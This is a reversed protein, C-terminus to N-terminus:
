WEAQAIQRYDQLASGILRQAEFAKEAVDNLDQVTEHEFAIALAGRKTKTKMRTMAGDPPVYGSSIFWHSHVVQNRREEVEGALRLGKKLQEATEAFLELLRSESEARKPAIRQLTFISPLAGALRTATGFSLEGVMAYTLQGGPTGVERNMLLTLESKLTAELSQFAVIMRGIALCHQDYTSDM